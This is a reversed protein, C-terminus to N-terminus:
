CSRAGTDLLHGPYPAVAANKGTSECLRLYRSCVPRQSRTGSTSRYVFACPRNRTSPAGVGAKSSTMSNSRAVTRGLTAPGFRGCSRTSSGITQCDNRPGFGVVPMVRGPWVSPGFGTFSAGAVITASAVGAVALAACREGARPPVGSPETPISAIVDHVFVDFGDTMIAAPRSAFFATSRPNDTFGYTFVVIAGPERTTVRYM